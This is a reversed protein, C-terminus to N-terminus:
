TGIAESLIAEHTQARHAHTAVIRGRRVVHLTDALDYVEPLYSSILLIGAGNRLLDAFIRYIQEKTGVDVGVTPEDFVFLEAGHALWRAIVLKQQNGGSLTRAEANRSTAMIRLDRMQQIAVAREDRPVVVGARSLRRFIPLAINFGVGLNLCLGQDRRSEPLLVIGAAIADAESQVNLKRGHMRVTGGSRRRRGYLCQVFESRGAGILGYLGVIESRRVALSINEFGPGSLGEVELLTEGPTMTTKPHVDELSRAVMDRILERENTEGVNRTVVLRGDRLVSVREAIEFIEELRHSIYVITVGKAHLRRIL